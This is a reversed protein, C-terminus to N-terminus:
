RSGGKELDDFLEAATAFVKLGPSMADAMARETAANPVELRLPLAQELVVRKLFLRIADPMSLGIADLTFSADRRLQDDIRLHMMSSKPALTQAPSTRVAEGRHPARAARKAVKDSFM